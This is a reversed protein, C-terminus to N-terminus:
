ATRERASRIRRSAHAVVMTLGWALQATCPEPVGNLVQMIEILAAQVNGGSQEVLDLFLPIDSFTNRNDFDMDAMLAESVSGHIYFQSHYSNPDRIAWAFLAVDDEDVGGENNMNGRQESYSFKIEGTLDFEPVWSGNGVAAGTIDDFGGLLADATLFSYTVGPVPAAGGLVSLDLTGGLTATGTVHIMDFVAGGLAPRFQIELRADSVLKLNGDIDLSAGPALTAIAGTEDGISVNGNVDGTANFLGASSFVTAANITGGSLNLTGASQTFQGSLNVTGRSLVSVTGSTSLSGATVTSVAPGGGGLTLSGADAVAVNTVVNLGAPNVGGTMVLGGPMTGLGLEAAFV